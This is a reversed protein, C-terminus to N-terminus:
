DDHAEKSFELIKGSTAHIEFEYEVFATEFEIEYVRIGHEKDLKAKTFIVKSSDVGAHKLAIEKARDIGIYTSNSQTTSATPKPKKTTTEERSVASQSETTIPKQTTAVSQATYNQPEETQPIHVTTEATSTAAEATATLENMQATTETQASPNVACLKREKSIIKDTVSSIIYEYSFGDCSFDVKYVVTGEKFSVCSSYEDALENSCEADAMALSLAKDLGNSYKNTLFVGALALGAILVVVALVVAIISKSKM